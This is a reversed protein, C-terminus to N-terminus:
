ILTALLTTNMNRMCNEDNEKNFYHFLIFAVLVIFSLVGGGITLYKLLSSGLSFLGDFLSISNELAIDAVTEIITSNKICIYSMNEPLDSSDVYGISSNDVSSDCAVCDTENLTSVDSNNYSCPNPIKIDNDKLYQQLVTKSEVNSLLVPITAETISSKLKEELATKLKTDTKFAYLLLLAINIHNGQANTCAHLNVNSNQSSCSKSIVKCSITKGNIHQVLYCGNRNLTAKMLTDYMSKGVVIGGILGTFILSKNIASRKNLESWFKSLKSKANLSLSKELDMDARAVIDLDPHQQKLRDIEELSKAIKIEPLHQNIKKFAKEDAETLSHRVGIANFFKRLKGARLHKEVLRFPVGEVHIESNVHKFKVDALTSGFSTISMNKATTKLANTITVYEGVTLFHKSALRIAKLFKFGAAM